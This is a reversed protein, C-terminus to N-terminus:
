RIKGGAQEILLDIVEPSETVLISPGANFMIETRTGGGGLVYAQATSMNIRTPSKTICETLTLYLM